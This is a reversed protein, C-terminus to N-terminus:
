SKVKWPVDENDLAWQIRETTSLKSLDVGGKGSSAGSPVKGPEKRESVLKDVRAKLALKEMEVPDKAKLLEDLTDESLEFEKVFRQAELNKIAEDAKAIMEKQSAKEADFARKDDLYRKRAEVVQKAVSTDGGEDEIKQLWGAVKKEESEAELRDLRERAERSATEAAELRKQSESTQKDWSSQRRNWEKESFLRPKPAEGGVKAKEAGEPPKLAAGEAQPLEGKVEPSTPNTLDDM